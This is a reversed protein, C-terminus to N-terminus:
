PRPDDRDNTLRGRLCLRTPPPPACEFPPSRSCVFIATLHMYLFPSWILLVLLGFDVMWLWWWVEAPSPNPPLFPLIHPATHLNFQM